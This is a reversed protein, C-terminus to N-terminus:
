LGERENLGIGRQVLEEVWGNFEGRMEIPLVHGQGRVFRKEVQGTEWVDEEKEMGVYERGTKGEGKELGRWLVVGHPFTIMKDETGHVVM